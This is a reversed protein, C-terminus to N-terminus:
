SPNARRVTLCLLWKLADSSHHIQLWPGVPIVSSRSVSTFTSPSLPNLLFLQYQIFHMFSIHFLKLDIARRSTFMPSDSIGIVWCNADAVPINFIGPEQAPYGFTVKFRKGVKFRNISLTSGRSRFHFFTQTKIQSNHQETTWNHGVRELGVSQLRGPEKIWPIEWALISSHIAMGEELSRVGVEKTEQM